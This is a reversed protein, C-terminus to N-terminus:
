ALNGGLDRKLRRWIPRWRSGRSLRTSSFRERAAATVLRCLKSNVGRDVERKQFLSKPRARRRPLCEPCPLPCMSWYRPRLPTCTVYKISGSALRNSDRPTGMLSLCFYSSYLAHFTKGTSPFFGQQRQAQLRCGRFPVLSASRCSDRGLSYLPAPGSLTRWQGATLPM